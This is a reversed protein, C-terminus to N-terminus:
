VQGLAIHWYSSQEVLVHTNVLLMYLFLLHWRVDYQSDRSMSTPYKRM